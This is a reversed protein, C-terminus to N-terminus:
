IGRLFYYSNPNYKTNSKFLQTLYPMIPYNKLINYFDENFGFTIIGKVIGCTGGFLKINLFDKSGGRRKEMSSMKINDLAQFAEKIQKRIEKKDKLGRKNM